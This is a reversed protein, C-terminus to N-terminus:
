RQLYSAYKLSKETAVILQIHTLSDWGKVDKATTEPTLNINENDLKDRFIRSLM